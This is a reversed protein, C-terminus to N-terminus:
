ASRRRNIEEKIASALMSSKGKMRSGHREFVVNLYSSPLNRILQGKYPGWLMRWGREKKREEPASFLDRGEHEFTVGVLLSKRKRNLEDVADQSRMAEIIDTGAVDESPKEDGDQSAKQMSGLMRQRREGDDRCAADLVDLANVLQISRSADTIDYINFHPKASAALAALREDKSMGHDLVGKLARTGRGIRQEYVALSQTPAANYINRLEPYDWGYALIGVNCIIKSEGSTFAKMNAHRQDPPQESWVVSARAGYRELVEALLRAQLVSHCYVASPQGKYTQLVLSSIEQVAHEATLVAELQAANWEHAVQEVASLDIAKSESLFGRPRVLWGDEIGDLLSYSYCPRDWFPLPKGRGKYPTASLGVITAGSDQFYNLIETMRPTIGIHCEDVIVLSTGVFAKGRYRGRSMLTDKSAVIVRSRLGMISEARLYGQEVDVREELWHELCGHLQGLLSLSPSVVVPRRAMRCLESMVVTKGSGVPLCVCVRRSGSKAAGVISEVAQRQYERMQIM